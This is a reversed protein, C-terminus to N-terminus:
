AGPGNSPLQLAAYRVLDAGSRQLRRAIAKRHTEVTAIALGTTRAIQKNSLGQGILDFIQRQRRTLESLPDAVSGSPEAGDLVQQLLEYSSTKDVVGILMPEVDAPCVFSSAQGSLVLGRASPNVLQLFRLLELGNGDPLALDVLLLDPRLRQIAEMGERCTKAKGVLEIQPHTELMKGLLQLFMLQDEVILCRRVM